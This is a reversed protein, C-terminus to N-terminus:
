PKNTLMKIITTLDVINVMGDKNVDAAGVIFSPSPNGSLYKALETVDSANLTGSEDVDGLVVEFLSAYGGADPRATWGTAGYLRVRNLDTRTFSYSGQPAMFRFGTKRYATPVYVNLYNTWNAAVYINVVNNLYIVVDDIRGGNLYLRANPDIRLVAGPIYTDTPATSNDLYGKIHCDPGFYLNGAVDFIYRQVTKGDVVYHASSSLDVVVNEFKMSSGSPIYFMKDATWVTQSVFQGGKISVHSGVPLYVPQTIVIVREKLDLEQPKAETSASEDAQNEALWDLYAQLDDEDMVEEDRPEITNDEENLYWRWRKNPLEWVIRKFHDRSLIFENGWFVPVRPTPRGGVFVINFNYIWKYLIRVVVKQDLLMPVTPKFDYNGPIYFDDYAEIWYNTVHSFDFRGGDIRLTAGKGHYLLSRGYGGIIGGRFYFIGYNRFVIQTTSVVNNTISGGTMTYTADAFNQATIVTGGSQTHQGYNQVDNIIGGIFYYVNRNVIKTVTGDEQNVTGDNEVYDVNGELIDLTGENKLRPNGEEGSYKLHGRKGIRAFWDWNDMVITVNVNIEVTGDIYIIHDGGVDDKVFHIDDFVVHSGEPVYIPHFDAPRRGGGNPLPIPWSGDENNVVKVPYPVRPFVVPQTNCNLCIFRPIVVVLTDTVSLEQEAQGTEEEEALLNLFAQLDDLDSEAINWAYAQTATTVKSNVNIGSYALYAKATNSYFTYQGNGINKGTWVTAEAETGDKLVTSGQTAVIYNGDNDRLRFDAGSVQEFFMMGASTLVFGRNSKYGMQLEKDLNAPVINYVQDATPFNIPFTNFQTKLTALQREENGAAQELEQLRLYFNNWKQYISVADEISAISNQNVLQNFDIQLAALEKETVPADYYCLQKLASLFDDSAKRTFYGSGLETYITQCDSQIIKTTKDADKWAATFADFRTRIDNAAEAKCAEELDFLKTSLNSGWDDVDEELKEIDTNIASYSSSSANDLQELLALRRSDLGDIGNALKGFEAEMNSQFAHPLYPNLKLYREMFTRWTNDQETIKAQIEDLKAKLQDYTYSDLGNVTGGNENSITGNTEGEVYNYTDNQGDIYIAIGTGKDPATIDGQQYFTSGDYIGVGAKCNASTAAGADVGATSGLIVTAGGYIKLLCTGGTYASTATITGNIFKVSAKITLEKTRSQYSTFKSLDVETLGVPITVSEGRRVTSRAGAASQETALKDLYEQLDDAEQATMQQCLGTLMLAIWVVQRFLNRKMNM